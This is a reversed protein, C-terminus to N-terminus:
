PPFCALLLGCSDFCLERAQPERGAWLEHASRAEVLLEDRSREEDPSTRERGARGEGFPPGGGRSRAENPSFPEPLRPLAEDIALQTAVSATCTNFKNILFVFLSTRQGDFLPPDVGIQIRVM